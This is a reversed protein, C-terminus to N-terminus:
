PGRKAFREDTERALVGGLYLEPQYIEYSRAAIEVASIDIQPIGSKRIVAVSSGWVVRPVGAWALAGCCMACPEGTSYLTSRTWDKNGHRAIYDNIAVAEGHLMPNQLSGNVGRALVEGTTHDVIVAAFPSSTNGGSFDIGLRMFEEHTLLEDASPTAALLRRAAQQARPDADFLYPLEIADSVGLPTTVAPNAHGGPGDSCAAAVVVAGTVGGLRLVHRRTRMPPTMM